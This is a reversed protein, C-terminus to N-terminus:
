TSSFAFITRSRGVKGSAWRSCALVFGNGVAVAAPIGIRAEKLRGM